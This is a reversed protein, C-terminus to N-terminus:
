VKIAGGKREHVAMPVWGVRPGMKHLQLVFAGTLLQLISCYYVEALNIMIQM